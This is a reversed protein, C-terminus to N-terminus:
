RGTVRIGPAKQYFKVGDMQAAERMSNALKNLAAQNVDLVNIFMPNAAVFAVLKAKSEVEGVWQGEVTGIGRPKAIPKVPESPIVLHSVPPPPAEVVLPEDAIACFEEETIGPEAALAALEEDRKRKAEVEMAKVREEHERREQEAKERAVREREQQAIRELRQQELVYASMKSKIISCADNLPDIIKKEQAVIERHADLAKRKMPEFTEKAEKLLAHAAKLQEAAAANEADTTVVLANAIGPWPSTKAEIVRVEVPQEILETM